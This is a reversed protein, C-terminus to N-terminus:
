GRRVQRIALAKIADMLRIRAVQTDQGTGALAQLADLVIARVEGLQDVLLAIRERSEIAERRWAQAARDPSTAPRGRELAM